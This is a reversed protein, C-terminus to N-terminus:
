WGAVGKDLGGVEEAYPPKEHTHTSTYKTHVRMHMHICTAGCIKDLGGVEAYPPKEEKSQELPIEPRVFLDEYCTFYDLAEFHFPVRLVM